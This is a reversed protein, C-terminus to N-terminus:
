VSALNDPSMQFHSCNLLAVNVSLDSFWLMDTLTLAWTHLLWTTLRSRNVPVTVSPAGLPPFKM